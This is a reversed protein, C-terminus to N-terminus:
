LNFEESTKELFLRINDQAFISQARQLKEKSWDWWQIKLLDAIIDNAFRFRIVKAPVGGVIAYDPINEVVVAGAGIIAGNGIRVGDAIFVRAGIWVDHGIITEKREEFSDKDSFTVGCQKLTSYFVPSTSAFNTPHVGLGCLFYPGISCFRGVKTKGLESNNAIYSFRGLQADGLMCAQYVFVNEEINSNFICCSDSITVNDGLFSALILSNRGVKSNRGLTSHNLIRAGLSINSGPYAIKTSTCQLLYRTINQLIM